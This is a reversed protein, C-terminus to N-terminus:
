GDEPEKAKEARVAKMREVVVQPETIESLKFTELLVVPGYGHGGRSEEKWYRGREDPGIRPNLQFFGEYYELTEEDLNVIYAHECFLGDDLFERACEYVGAELTKGLEGQADRLLDYWEVESDPGNRQRAYKALRVIDDPTPEPTKVKEFAIAKERLWTLAGEPGLKTFSDHLFDVVDAGVADPYSDFHNYVVKTQGNIVVGIAGRTGM